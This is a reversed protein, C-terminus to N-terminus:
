LTCLFQLDASALLYMDNTGRYVAECFPIHNEQLKAKICKVTNKEGYREYDDLIICFSSNLCEPLFNLIDIRSFGNPDDTGYPGDLSIFDFKKEQIIEGLNHYIYPKSQRNIEVPALNRQVIRTSTGHPFDNEFIKIWETDHEIVLHSCEQRTELWKVYSGILRTSQGLGTELISKPQVENLYRSVVYMYQYGVGWRGPWLALNNDLWPFACRASTFVQAWLIENLMRDNATINQKIEDLKNDLQDMRDYLQKLEMPPVEKKQKESITDETTIGFQQRKQNIEAKTFYGQKEVHSLVENLYPTSDPYQKQYEEMYDFFESFIKQYATRNTHVIDHLDAVYLVTDLWGRVDKSICDASMYSNVLIEQVLSYDYQKAIRLFLEWDQLRKLDENFCGTHEFVDKRILVSPLDIFMNCQMCSYIDGIRSENLEWDEPVTKLLNDGEYKAMRCYIVGIKNGQRKEEFKMLKMQKELKKPLWEDDSDNFAIYSGNSSQIGINRAHNAGSNQELKIYRIRKDNISKIVEETNDTSADDVIIVELNRYTQSLVSRISREICYGRNYSPIVVSVLAEPESPAPRYPEVGIGIDTKTAAYLYHIDSLGAQKWADEGFYEKGLIHVLYGADSLRNLFDEAAYFRKRNGNGFHPFADETGLMSKEVTQDLGILLPVLFICVGDPKMIQRLKYLYAKDDDIQDLVHSCIIIDYLGDKISDSNRIGNQSTIKSLLLDSTDCHIKEKQLLWNQLNASPAIHLLNLKQSGEPQLLDIFLGILRESDMTQCEPCTYKLQSVSEFIKNSYLFGYEKQNKQDQAPRSLYKVEKQCLNCRGCTSLLYSIYCNVDDRWKKIEEDLEDSFIGHCLSDSIKDADPLEYVSALMQSITHISTGLIRLIENDAQKGNRHQESISCRIKEIRQILNQIDKLKLLFNDEAAM